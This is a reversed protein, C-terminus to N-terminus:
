VALSLLDNSMCKRREKLLYDFTDFWLATDARTCHKSCINAALDTVHLMKAYCPLTAALEQRVTSQKDAQLIQYLIARTADAKSVSSTMSSTGTASPAATLGSALVSPRRGVAGVGSDTRLLADIEAKAAQIRRSIDTCLLKVAASGSGQRELLYASADLVDKDKCLALAEDLPYHTTSSLFKYTDDPAFALLLRIFTLVDSHSFYNGLERDVDTKIDTLIAKLTNYQVLPNKATAGVIDAVNNTLYQCAVRQTRQENINSLEVLFKCLVKRAESQITFGATNGVVVGSEDVISDAQAAGLDMSYATFQASIYDFVIEDFVAQKGSSSTSAGSSTQSAAGTNTSPTAKIGCYFRLALEFDQKSACFQKRNQM